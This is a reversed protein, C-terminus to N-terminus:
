PAVRGRDGKFLDLFLMGGSVRVLAYMSVHGCFIDDRQCSCGGDVDGEGIVFHRSGIAGSAVRQLLPVIAPPIVPWVWRGCRGFYLRTSVPDGGVQRRRCHVGEKNNVCVFLYSIAAPVIGVKPIERVVSVSGRAGVMEEVHGSPNM